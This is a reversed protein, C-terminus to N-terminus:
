STKCRFQTMSPYATLVSRFRQFQRRPGSMEISPSKAHTPFSATLAVTASAITTPDCVSTADLLSQMFRTLILLKQM